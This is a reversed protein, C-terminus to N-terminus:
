VQGIVARSSRDYAIYGLGGCVLILLALFGGLLKIGIPINKM